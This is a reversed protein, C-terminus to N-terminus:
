NHGVDGCRQTYLKSDDLCINVLDTLNIAKLHSVQVDKNMRFSYEVYNTTNQSRTPLKNEYREKLSWERHRPLMNQEVHRKFNEYKRYTENVGMEEVHIAFDESTEAYVLQKVLNLM